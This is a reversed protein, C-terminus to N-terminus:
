KIGLSKNYNNSAVAAWIVCVPWTFILGIGLTFLGVLLSVIMMVIAGTITSYFMGLPGFFITLLITVGMSKQTKVVVVQSQNQEEMVIGKRIKHNTRSKL